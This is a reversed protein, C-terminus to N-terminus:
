LEKLIKNIEQVKYYIVETWKSDPHDGLVLSYSNKAARLKGIKQYCEGIYFYVDDIYSSNRFKDIYERYVDIANEPKNRKRWIEGIKYLSRRAITHEPSKDVIKRYYRIAKDLDNYKYYNIDGLFYLASLALKTDPYNDIVKKLYVEAEEFRSEEFNREATVYLKLAEEDANEKILKIRNVCISRWKSNINNRVLEQYVNIVKSFEKTNFFYMNGLMFMADEYFSHLKHKERIIEGYEIAKPMFSPDTDMVNRYYRLLLFCGWAHLAADVNNKRVVQEYLKAESGSVPEVREMIKKRFRILSRQRFIRGVLNYIILSMMIFLLLLLTIFFINM